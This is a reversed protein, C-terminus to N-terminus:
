DYINRWRLLKESSSPMIELPMDKYDDIIQDTTHDEPDYEEHQEEM